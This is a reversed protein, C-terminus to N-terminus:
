PTVKKMAAQVLRFLAPQMTAAQAGVQSIMKVQKMIVDKDEPSEAVFAESM